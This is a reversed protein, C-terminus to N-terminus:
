RLDVNQLVTDSADRLELAGRVLSSNPSIIAVCSYRHDPQVSVRLACGKLAGLAGCDNKQPKVVTGSPGELIQVTKVTVADPGANFLTCHADFQHAAAHIAASALIQSSSDHPDGANATAVLSAAMLAPAITRAISGLM